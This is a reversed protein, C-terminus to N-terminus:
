GPRAAARRRRRVLLIAVPLALWTAFAFAGVIELHATFLILTPSLFMSFLGLGLFRDGWRRFTEIERSHTRGAEAQWDYCTAAYGLLAVSGVLDVLTVQFLTGDFEGAQVHDYLFFLAFTLVAVDMGVLTITADRNARGTM